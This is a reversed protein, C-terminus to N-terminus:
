NRCAPFRVGSVFPRGAWSGDSLKRVGTEENIFVKSKGEGGVFPKGTNGGGSVPASVTLKVTKVAHQPAASARAAEAQKKAEEAQQKALERKAKEAAKRERDEVFSKEQM